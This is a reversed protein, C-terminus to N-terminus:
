IIVVPKEHGIRVSPDIYIKFGKTVARLCFAIDESTYWTENGIQREMPRFWPRDLMEFVGKKVLMFPMGVYAVEVLGSENAIENPTLLKYMGHQCFYEDDLERAAPVFKGSEHLCVGSAIDKEHRLLAYFDQPEFVSDSDIWMLYDYQIKGGFPVSSKDDKAGARLCMERSEYVNASYQQSLMPEIGNVM